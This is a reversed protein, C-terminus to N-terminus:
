GQYWLIRIKRPRRTARAGKAEKAAGEGGVEETM